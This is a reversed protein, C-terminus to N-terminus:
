QEVLGMVPLKVVHPQLFTGSLQYELIKHMIVCILKHNKYQAAAGESFLSSSLKEKLFTFFSKQFLYFIICVFLYSSMALIAYNKQILITHLLRIFLVKHM